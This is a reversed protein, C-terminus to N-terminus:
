GWLQIRRHGLGKDSAGIIEGGRLGGFEKINRSKSDKIPDFAALKLGRGGKAAM